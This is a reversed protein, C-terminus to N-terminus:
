NNEGIIKIIGTNELISKAEKAEADVTQAFLEEKEKHFRDRDFSINMHLEDLKAAAIASIEEMNREYAHFSTAFHTYTGYGLGLRDAIVKQLEIFFAWDYPTGFWIDNSRMIATCHLKGDRNLFQLAITCPEDKTEIVRVNPVNINIVARRSNPDVTLLEIVKEIQNFGHKHMLLYGYASNSTVGDDSIHKWFTSYKSIYEMSQSGNFYWLFEGLLYTTSINRVSVISNSIDNIEIKMNNLERTNGVTPATVLMECLTKYAEDVTNFKM